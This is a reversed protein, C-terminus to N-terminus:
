VRDLPVVDGRALWHLVAEDLAEVPAQAVFAEVLRQERRQRMGPEHKIGPPMVVVVYPRVRFQAPSGGGLFGTFRDPLM